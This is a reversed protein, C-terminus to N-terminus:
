GGSSPQWDSSDRRDPITPRPQHRKRPQPRRPLLLTPAAPRAPTAVATWRRPPWKPHKRPETRLRSGEILRKLGWSSLGFAPKPGHRNTAKNLQGPTWVKVCNPRFRVTAVADHRTTRRGKKTRAAM